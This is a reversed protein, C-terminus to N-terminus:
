PRYLQNGLMFNSSWIGRREKRAQEQTLLYESVVPEGEHYLVWAMGEKLALSAIDEGSPLFCRVLVTAYADEARGENLCEIEYGLTLQTLWGTAVAGCPWALGNLHAIQNVECGGIGFLRYDLTSDAMRFTIGNRVSIYGSLAQAQAEITALGITLSATFAIWNKSKM